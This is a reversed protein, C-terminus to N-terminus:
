TLIPKILQCELNNGNPLKVTIRSPYGKGLIAQALPTLFSIKSKKPDGVPSDVIELEQAEGNVVVLVKDGINIKNSKNFMSM